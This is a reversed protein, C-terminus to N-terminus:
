QKAWHYLIYASAGIFVVWMLALLNAFFETFYIGLLIGFAVAASKFLGMQWWNMKMNKFPNLKM